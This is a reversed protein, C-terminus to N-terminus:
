HFTDLLEEDTLPRPATQSQRLAQAVALLPTIDTTGRRDFVWLDGVAKRRAARVAINLSPDDRHRFMGQSVLDYLLGCGQAVERVSPKTITLGRAEAQVILAGAPSSPSIVFAAPNWKDRLEVLRDVVWETGRRYDVVAGHAVGDMRNGAVSICAWSREDNVELAFTVPDLAASQPDACMTWANVDLATTTEHSEDPISLRERRFEAEPIADVESAIYDETIRYGLAPNAQAWADRDHIDADDPASWELYALRGADGAIARKRLAHLQESDSLAASSTYWVQPNPRTSLTPLLAAM